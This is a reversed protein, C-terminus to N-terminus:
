ERGRYELFCPSFQVLGIILATGYTIEDIKIKNPLNKKTLFLYFSMVIFCVGLIFFNEGEFLFAMKEKLFFGALGAPLTGLAIKFVLAISKKDQKFAFSKMESLFSNVLNFLKARLFLLIALLTGFHFVTNYFFQNESFNLWNQLVVIHGSSSVPLFETLGQILALLITKFYILM